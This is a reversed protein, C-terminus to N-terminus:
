LKIFKYLLLEGVRSTRFKTMTKHISIYYDQFLFDVMQAVDGLFFIKM